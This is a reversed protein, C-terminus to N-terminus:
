ILEVGVDTVSCDTEPDFDKLFKKAAEVENEAEIEEEYSIRCLFRAM